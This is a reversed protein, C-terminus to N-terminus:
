LPTDYTPLLAKFAEQLAQELEQESELISEVNPSEPKTGHTLADRIQKLYIYQAYNETEWFKEKLERSIDKRDSTYRDVPYGKVECQRTVLAEWGFMAARTYDRRELYQDALKTRQESSYSLKAWALRESLQPRFLESAGSLSCKLNPLFSRIEEAAPSLNHTREHFAARELHQATKPDVGDEQLLPVFVSYDGTADFRELASMWRRVRDLGKLKIVPTIGELEGEKPTMNYAGYWLDRVTLKRVRELMFASLFGIMGFHRYAHTLDLSVKGDPTNCKNAIYDLIEYQESEIKGFPIIIPVVKCKLSKSMLGEVKSLMDQTVAERDEAEFLEDRANQDEGTSALGEVLVSWQSGQTGLIVFRDPKVHEVLVLGLFSTDKPKGQDPELEGKADLFSYKTTEYGIQDNPLSRGRGLFTVLTHHCM